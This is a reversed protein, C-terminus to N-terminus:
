LQTRRNGRQDRRLATPSSPESLGDDCQLSWAIRGGQRIRSVHHAEVYHEGNKKKFGLADRGLAECVQCKFGTMKKVSAGISGREIYKSIREKVEPSAHRYKKEMAALAASTSDFQSPPAPLEDLEEGLLQM